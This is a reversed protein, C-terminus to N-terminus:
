YPLPTTLQLVTTSLITQKLQEHCKYVKLINCSFTLHTLLVLCSNHTGLRFLPSAVYLFSTKSLSSLYSHKIRVEWNFRALQLEYNQMQAVPPQRCFSEWQRAAAARWSLSVSFRTWKRWNKLHSSKHRSTIFTLILTKFLSEFM